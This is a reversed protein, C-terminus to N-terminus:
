LRPPMHHNAPLTNSAGFQNPRAICWSARLWNIQADLMRGALWGMARASPKTGLGM